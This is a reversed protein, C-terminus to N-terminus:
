RAIIKRLYSNMQLSIYLHSTIIHGTLPIRLAMVVSILVGYLVAFSTGTFLSAKWLSNITM